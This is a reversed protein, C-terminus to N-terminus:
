SFFIIIQMFSEWRQLLILMGLEISDFMERLSTLVPLEWDVGELFYMVVNEPVAIAM